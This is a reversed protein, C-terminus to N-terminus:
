NLIPGGGVMVCDLGTSNLEAGSGAMAVWGSRISHWIMSQAVVVTCLIFTGGGTSQIDVLWREVVVVAMM